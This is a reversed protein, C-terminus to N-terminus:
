KGSRKPSKFNKFLFDYLLVYLRNYFYICTDTYMYWLVFIMYFYMYGTTFTFVHVVTDYFLVQVKEIIWYHSVVSFFLRVKHIIVDILSNERGAIQGAYRSIKWNKSKCHWNRCQLFCKVKEVRWWLLRIMINLTCHFHIQLTM